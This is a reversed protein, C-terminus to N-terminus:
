ALDEDRRGVEVRQGGIESPTSRADGVGVVL